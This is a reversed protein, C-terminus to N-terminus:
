RLLVPPGYAAAARFQRLPARERIVGGTEQPRASWSFRSLPRYIDSKTRGLADAIEGYSDGEARMQRIVKADKDRERRVKPRGLTQGKSRAHAKSTAPAVVCNTLHLQNCRGSIGSGGATPSLADVELAM